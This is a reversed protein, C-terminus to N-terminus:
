PRMGPRVRMGGPPYASNPQFFGAQPLVVEEGERLGDMIEVLTESRLGTRVQRTVANGEGDLLLVNSGEPGEQLVELPLLLVNERRELVIEVDATMGTRLIGDPNPVHTTVEFTVINDIVKGEFAINTVEGLFREGPLADLTIFAEQGIRVRPIDIENVPVVARMTVLDSVVALQRGTSGMPDITNGIKVIMEILTGRIPSRITTAAVDDRAIELDAQAQSLRAEALTIDEPEAGKLLEELSKAAVTERKELIAVQSESSEVTQRSVALDEFLSRHRELDERASSLNIRAEALAVEAQVIEYETPGTLLRNLEAQRSLVDAEAQKLRVTWIGADLEILPWGEEVQEGEEVLLTRVTGEVKANIEVRDAAQLTGLASIISSIEGRVVEVTAPAEETSSGVAARSSQIQRIGLGAIGLIIIVFVIILTKKRYKM